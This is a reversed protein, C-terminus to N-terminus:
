LAPTLAAPLPMCVQATLARLHSALGPATANPLSLETVFGGGGDKAAAPFAAHALAAALQRQMASAHPAEEARQMCACCLTLCWGGSVAGKLLGRWFLCALSPPVKGPRTLELRGRATTAQDPAALALRLRFLPGLRLSLAGEKSRLQAGELQWGVCGALIDLEESQLHLM